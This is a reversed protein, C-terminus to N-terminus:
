QSLQFRGGSIKELISSDGLSTTNWTVILAGLGFRSRCCYAIAASVILV